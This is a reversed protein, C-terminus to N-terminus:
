NVPDLLGTPRFLIQEVVEQRADLEYPGPTASIYLLRILWTKGFEELRLPRNDLASPLRFGYGILREKEARDGIYMGRIQSRTINPVGDIVILFTKRSVFDILTYPQGAWSESWDMIDQITRLNGFLYGNRFLMELDYNTRM